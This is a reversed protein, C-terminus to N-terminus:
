TSFGIRWPASPRSPARILNPSHRGTVMRLRQHSTGAPATATEASTATVRTLTNGPEEALAFGAIMLGERVAETGTVVAGAGGGVVGTVVLEQRETTCM